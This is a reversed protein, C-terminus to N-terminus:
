SVFAERPSLWLLLGLPAVSSTSSPSQMRPATIVRLPLGDDNVVKSSGFWRSFNEAKTYDGFEEAAWETIEPRATTTTDTATGSGGRQCTNGVQFGLAGPEGADCDRLALVEVRRACAVVACESLKM